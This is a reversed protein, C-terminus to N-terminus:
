RWRRRRANQANLDAVSSALRKHQDLTLKVGPSLEAVVSNLSRLPHPDITLAWREEEASAPKVRTKASAKNNKQCKSDKASVRAPAEAPTKASAMPRKASTKAHAKTPTKAPAAWDKDGAAPSRSKTRENIRFNDGHTSGVVDRIQYSCAGPNIIGYSTISSPMPRTDRIKNDRGKMSKLSVM